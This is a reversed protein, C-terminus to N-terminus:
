AYPPYWLANFAPKDNQYQDLTGVSTGTVPDGDVVPVLDGSLMWYELAGDDLREGEYDRIISNYPAAWHLRMYHQDAASPRDWSASRIGLFSAIDMGGSRGGILHITAGVAKARAVVQQWFYAQFLKNTWIANALGPPAAPSDCFIDVAAAPGGVGPAAAAWGCNVPDIVDPIGIKIVQTPRRANVTNARTVIQNYRGQTINHQPNQGHLGVWRMNILVYHTNAQLNALWALSYGDYAAKFQQFHESAATAKDFLGSLEDQAAQVRVRSYGGTLARMIMASTSAWTHGVLPVGRGGRVRDSGSVRAEDNGVSMDAPGAVTESVVRGDAVGLAGVLSLLARANRNDRENNRNWAAVLRLNPDICLAAAIHWLDGTMAGPHILWRNASANAQPLVWRGVETDRRRYRGELLQTGRGLLNVAMPVVAGGWGLAPAPGNVIQGNAADPIGNNKWTLTFDSNCTLLQRAAVAKGDVM